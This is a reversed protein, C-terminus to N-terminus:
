RMFCIASILASKRKLFQHENISIAEMEFVM